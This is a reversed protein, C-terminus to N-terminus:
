LENLSIEFKCIQDNKGIMGPQFFCYLKDGSVVYNSSTFSQSVISTADGRYLEPAENIQEIIENMIKQNLDAPSDPALSGLMVTDGLALDYTFSKYSDTVSGDADNVFSCKFLLSVINTDSYVEYTINYEFSSPADQAETQAKTLLYDNKLGDILSEIGENCKNVNEGFEEAEVFPRSVNLVATSGNEFTSNDNDTINSIDVVIPVSESTDDNTSDQEGSSSDDATLNTDTDFIDDSVNSNNDYNDINSLKSDDTDVTTDELQQPATTEEPKDAIDEDLNLVILMVIIVLAIVVTFVIAMNNQKRMNKKKKKTAM